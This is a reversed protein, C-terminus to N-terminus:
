TAGGITLSCVSHTDFNIAVVFGSVFGFIAMSAYDPDGIFLVFTGTVADIFAKVDDVADADINLTFTGSDYIPRKQLDVDGFANRTTVSTDNLAIQPGWQTDGIHKSLGILLEGCAVVHGVDSLIVRVSCGAFPPIDEPAVVQEALVLGLAERLPVRTPPAVTCRSLVYARAEDLPIM